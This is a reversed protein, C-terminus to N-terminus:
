KAILVSIHLSELIEKTSDKIECDTVIKNINELDCVKYPAEKGFKTSDSVLIVQNSISIMEKRIPVEDIILSFVGRLENIADIGMFYKDVKLSKLMIETYYGYSSFFFPRLIGGLILVKINKDTCLEKAIMLDNTIVTLNNFRRKKINKAVEITTTGTDLIINEGEKILEAAKEGIAQKKERNMFIKTNYLPEKGDLLYNIDSAGGHELRILNQKSLEKLDRRITILSVNFNQTLEENTAFGRSKFYELIKAHREIKLM